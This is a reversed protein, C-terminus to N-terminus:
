FLGFSLKAPDIIDPIEYTVVGGSAPKANLTFSGNGGPHETGDNSGGRLTDKMLHLKGDLQYQYAFVMLTPRGNEDLRCAPYVIICDKESQSIRDLLNQLQSKSFVFLADGGCYFRRGGPDASTMERLQGDYKNKINMMQTAMENAEKVSIPQGYIKDAM